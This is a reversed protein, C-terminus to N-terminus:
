VVQFIELYYHKNWRLCWTFIGVLCHFKSLNPIMRQQSQLMTVWRTALWLNEASVRRVGALLASDEAQRFFIADVCLMQLDWLFGQQPDLLKVCRAWALALSVLIRQLEAGMGKSVEIPGNIPQCKSLSPGRLSTNSSKQGCPEGSEWSSIDCRNLDAPLCTTFWAVSFSRFTCFVFIARHWGAIIFDM